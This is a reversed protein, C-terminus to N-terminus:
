ITMKILNKGSKKLFDVLDALDRAHGTKLLIPLRPVNKLIFKFLHIGIQLQIKSYIAELVRKAFKNQHLIVM